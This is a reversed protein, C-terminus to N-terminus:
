STHSFRIRVFRHNGAPMRPAWVEHWRPLLVTLFVLLHVRLRCSGSGRSPVATLPSTLALLEKLEVRETLLAQALADCCRLRNHVMNYRVSSVRLEEPVSRVPLREALPAVVLFGSLFVGM